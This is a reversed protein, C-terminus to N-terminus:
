ACLDKLQNLQALFREAALSPPWPEWPTGGYIAHLPDDHLPPVTIKLTQQVETASWGAIHVAESAAALRDALKHAAYEKTTWGPLGYRLFVAADLKQSLTKFADGLFPKLPSICDFGLLGEEADHLLERLAALPPLTLGAATCAATRVQMVTLSHQAVSLPLPWASHGGWRYTRALGLALDSDDWDFPTPDLLDLRRGSPMRVWARQEHHDRTM